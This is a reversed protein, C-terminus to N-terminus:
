NGMARRAVHLNLAGAVGKLEVPGVAAFVASSSDAADVVQQSVLV